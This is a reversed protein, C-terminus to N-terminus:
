KHVQFSFPKAEFVVGEHSSDHTVHMTIRSLFTRVTGQHLLTDFLTVRERPITRLTADSDFVKDLANLSAGPGLCTGMDPHGASETVDNATETEVPMASSLKGVFFRQAPIEGRSLRRKWTIEGPIKGCPGGEAMCPRSSYHM